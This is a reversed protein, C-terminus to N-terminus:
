QAETLTFSYGWLGGQSTMTQRPMDVGDMVGYIRRGDPDRFLFVPQELQAIETLREVDATEVDDDLLRGSVAVGRSVAEGSYAVPLSRGAYQKMARQRGASIKVSPDFPLRGTVAFGNGGSLWLADSRAEVTIVTSAAAGDVTFATARYQIDGYSPSEWDTLGADGAPADSLVPEWTTGGDVSREIDQSIADASSDFVVVRNGVFALRGEDAGEEVYPHGNDFGINTVM